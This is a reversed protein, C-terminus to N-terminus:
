VERQRRLNRIQFIVIPIVLIFLFVALASGQGNEQYRFAQNYMELAVVNTDYNGNTMTRVIDFVKLTAITITVVVVILSPRISPLTVRWFMQWPTVGDLRAAEVIDAPIAKIAASLIVMSFGAQIWVMVVILLLTNLPPDLLWQQPTGGVTVWLWNLLGIQDGEGRYAYVFKWIIGAGVFSIAMPLFILSKAVSEFRARDIMVAYLLGVSTALLPVLIVWALTNILVRIIDNEQFIWGYNRLGVFKEGNGNFLSLIITRIAPIVLGILLLLLAPIMFALGLLGERKRRLGRRPPAGPAAGDAPAEAAAILAAERRRAFFNPVVDLLLLLGGVVVVFAIVGYLLMTLKPAFDQFEM